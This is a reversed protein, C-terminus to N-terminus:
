MVLEARSIILGYPSIRCHRQIAKVEVAEVTFVSSPVLSKMWGDLGM